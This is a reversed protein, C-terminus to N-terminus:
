IQKLWYRISFYLIISGLVGLRMIEADIYSQNWNIFAGLLGFFAPIVSLFGIITGAFAFIHKIEQEDTM